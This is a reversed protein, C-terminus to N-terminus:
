RGNRSTLLLLHVPVEFRFMVCVCVCVQCVCVCVASYPIWDSWTAPNSGWWYEWAPAPIEAHKQRARHMFATNDLCGTRLSIVLDRQEESKCRLVSGHCLPDFCETTRCCFILIRIESAATVHKERKGKLSSTVDPEYIHHLRWVANRYELVEGSHVEYRVVRAERHIM